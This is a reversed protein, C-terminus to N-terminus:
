ASGSPPSPDDSSDATGLCEPQESLAFKWEGSKRTFEFCVRVTAAPNPQGLATSSGTATVAVHAVVASGNVQVDGLHGDGGVALAVESAIVQEGGAVPVRAELRRGVDAAIQRARARAVDASTPPTSTAGPSGGCGSLLVATVAGLAAVLLAGPHM